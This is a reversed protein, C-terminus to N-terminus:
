YRATCIIQVGYHWGTTTVKCHFRDALERTLDEQYIVKTESDSQISSIEGVDIFTSSQITVKYIDVRGDAPCLSKIQFKYQITTNTFSM